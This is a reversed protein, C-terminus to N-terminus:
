QNNLAWDYERYRIRADAQLPTSTYPQLFAVLDGFDAAYWEFIKSLELQNAGIANYRSNNVFRRTLQDLTADLNNATFARNYLPPCSQAACNVAFHIRADPYRKRLIENEIQNLSYTHGALEIWTTNWPDGNDIERISSVPYHDVILKITFANYANIWYAMAENRSWDPQPTEAALTTLYASLEGSASQFGAYDVKGATTVYRQLLNTWATHSPAGIVESAGVPDPTPRTITEVPAEAIEEKETNAPATISPSAPEDPAITAPTAATAVRSPSEQRTPAEGAPPQAPTTTQATLVAPATDTAPAVPPRETSTTETKAQCATTLLLSCMLFTFLRNM